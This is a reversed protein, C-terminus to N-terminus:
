FSPPDEYKPVHWYKSSDSYEYCRKTSWSGAQAHKTIKKFLKSIRSLNRTSTETEEETTPPKILQEWHALESPQLQDRIPEITVRLREFFNVHAPSLRSTHFTFDADSANNQWLLRLVKDQNWFDELMAPRLQLNLAAVTAKFAVFYTQHAEQHLKTDTVHIPTVGDKQLVPKFTNKDKVILAHYQDYLEADLDLLYDGDPLGDPIYVGREEREAVGDVMVRMNAKNSSVHIPTMIFLDKADIGKFTTYNPSARKKIKWADRMIQAKAAYGSAVKEPDHVWSLDTKSEGILHACNEILFAMDSSSLVSTPEYLNDKAARASAQFIAKDEAMAMIWKIWGQEDDYLPNSRLIPLNRRRLVTAQLLREPSNPAGVTKGIDDIQTGLLQSFYDSRIQAQAETESSAQIKAAARKVKAFYQDTCSTKYELYFEDLAGDIMIGLNINAEMKNLRTLIDVCLAKSQMPPHGKARLAEMTCHHAIAVRVWILFMARMLSPSGAGYNALGADVNPVVICYLDRPSDEPPSYIDFAADINTIRPRGLAGRYEKQGLSRVGHFDSHCIAAPLFGMTALVMPQAAEVIKALANIHEDVDSHNLTPYVDVMPYPSATEYTELNIDSLYDNVIRGARCNGLFFSASAMIEKTIDSGIMMVPQYSTPDGNEYDGVAQNVSMELVDQKNEDEFGPVHQLFAAKIKAKITDIDGSRPMYSTNLDLKLKYVCLLDSALPQYSRFSGGPQVNLLLDRDLLHILFQETNDAKMTESLPVDLLPIDFVVPKPAQSGFAVKLIKMFNTLRNSGLLNSDEEARVSASRTTCGVYRVWVPLEGPLPQEGDPDLRARWAQVFAQDAYEAEYLALVVRLQEVSFPFSRIYFSIARSIMPAKGKFFSAVSAAKILSLLKAMEKDSHFVQNEVFNMLKGGYDGDQGKSLKLWFFYASFQVKVQSAEVRHDIVDLVPPYFSSM